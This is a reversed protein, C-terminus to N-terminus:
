PYAPPVPLPEIEPLPYPFPLPYIFPTLYTYRHFLWYLFRCLLRAVRDAFIEVMDKFRLYCRTLRLVYNLFRNVKNSFLWSWNNILNELKAILRDLLDCFDKFVETFFKRFYEKIAWVLRDYYQVLDCFIGLFFSRVYEDVKGWLANMVDRFADIVTQVCRGFEAIIEGLRGRAELDEMQDLIEELTKGAVVTQETIRQEIRNEYDHVRGWIGQIATVLDFVAWDMSDFCTPAMVIDCAERLHRRWIGWRGNGPYGPIDEEWPFPRKDPLFKVLVYCAGCHRITLMAALVSPDDDITSFVRDDSGAISELAAEDVFISRGIAGAYFELGSDRAAQAMGAVDEVQYGNYRYTDYIQGDTLVVVIHPVGDKWPTTCQMHKICYGVRTVSPCYDIDMVAYKLAYIDDYSCLPISTNTECKCYVFGVNPCEFCAIFYKIWELVSNFAEPGVSASGDVLFVVNLNCQNCPNYLPYGEANAGCMAVSVLWATLLVKWWM